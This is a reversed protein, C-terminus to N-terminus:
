NKQAGRAAGLAEEYAEKTISASNKFYTIAKTRFNVKKEYIDDADRTRVFTKVVKHKGDAYEVDRVELIEKAKSLQSSMREATKAENSAKVAVAKREAEEQEAKKNAAALREQEAKDAAIKKANALSAQKSASKQVLKTERAKAKMLWDDYSQKLSLEKGKLQSLINKQAAIEADGAAGIRKQLELRELKISAKAISKSNKDRALKAMAVQFNGVEVEKQAIQEERTALGAGNLNALQASFSDIVKQIAATSINKAELDDALDNIQNTIATEETQKQEILGNIREEEQQKQANRAAIQATKADQIETIKSGKVSEKRTLEAKSSQLNLKSQDYDAKLSSYEAKLDTTLSEEDIVGNLNKSQADLIAMDQELENKQMKAYYLQGKLDELDVKNKLVDIETNVRELQNNLKALVDETISSDLNNLAAKLEKSKQLLVEKRRVLDDIETQIGEIEGQKALLESKLEEQRELALRQKEAAQREKEIRAQEEKKAQAQAAIRAEQDLRAIEASVLQNQTQLDGELGQLEVLQNNYEKMKEQKSIRWGELEENKSKLQNSVTDGLELQKELIDIDIGALAIKEDILEENLKTNESQLGLAKIKSAIVPIKGKLADLDEGASYKKELDAAASQANNWETEKSIIKNQLDNIASLPLAKKGKLALVEQELQQKRVAVAQAEAAAAEKAVGLRDKLAREETQFLPIKENLANLETADVFYKPVELELANIEEQKLNKEAATELLEMELNAVATKLLVKNKEDNSHEKMLEKQEIELDNIDKKIKLLDLAASLSDIGSLANLNSEKGIVLNNKDSLSVSIDGLRSDIRALELDLSAISANKQEIQDNVGSVRALEAAAQEEKIREAELALRDEEAKRQSEAARAIEQEIRQESALAKSLEIRANSADAELKQVLGDIKDIDVQLQSIRPSVSALEMNKADIRSQMSEKNDELALDKELNLRSITAIILAEEKSAIDQSNQKISRNLKEVVEDITLKDLEYQWKESSKAEPAPERLDRYKEKEVLVQPSLVEEKELLKDLQNRLEAERSKAELIEKELEAKRNNEAEVLIKAQQNEFAAIEEIKNDISLQTADKKSELSSMLNEQEGMKDDFVSLDPETPMPKNDLQAQAVARKYELITKNKENFAKDKELLALQSRKNIVNLQKELIEQANQMALLNDESNNGQLSSIESNLKRIDETTTGIEGDISAIRQDSEKIQDDASVIENELRQTEEAAAQAAEEAAAQAAEAAEQEKAAQVAAAEEAKKLEEAAAVEAQMAKAEEQADDSMQAMMEELEKQPIDGKKFDGPEFDYLDSAWKIRVYPDSVTGLTVNGEVLEVKFKYEPWLDLMNELPVSTNFSIVKSVHDDYSVRILYESNIDMRYQVKGLSSRVAAPTEGAKYFQVTAGDIKGRKKNVTLNLKIYKVKSMRISDSVSLGTEKETDDDWKQASVFGLFLLSFSLFLLRVLM